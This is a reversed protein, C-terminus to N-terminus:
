MGLMSEFRGVMGSNVKRVVDLLQMGMLSYLTIVLTRCSNKIEPKNEAMCRLAVPVVNKSILSTASKTNTSQYIRPVIDSLKLIMFGKRKGNTNEVQNCYPLCLIRPDLSQTLSDIIKKALQNLKPTRALNGVLAPV